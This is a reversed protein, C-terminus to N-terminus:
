IFKKTHKNKNEVFVGKHFRFQASEVRTAPAKVTKKQAMVIGVLIMVGGISHHITWQESLWLSAIIATFVPMLNIFISTRNPGIAQVALM